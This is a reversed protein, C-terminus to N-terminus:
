PGSAPAWAREDIPIISGSLAGIFQSASTSISPPQPPDSREAKPSLGRKGESSFLRVTFYEVYAGSRRPSLSERAMVARLSLRM